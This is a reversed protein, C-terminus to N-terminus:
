KVEREMIYGTLIFGHKREFAKQNRRTAGVLKKKGNQRAVDELYDFWYKGNGFIHLIVLSEENFVFVVFGRKADVITIGQLLKSDGSKVFYRKLDEQGIMEM